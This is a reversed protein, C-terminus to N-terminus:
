TTCIMDKLFTLGEIRTSRSIMKSVASSSVKLYQALSNNDFEFHLRGLFAFVQRFTSTENLRGHLYFNQPDISIYNKVIALLNDLSVNEKIYRAIRVRRYHDKELVSDVFKKEGMIWYQPHFFGQKGKNIDKVRDIVASDERGSRIFKQYGALPDTYNFLDLVSKVDTISNCSNTIIERHGSWKYNDFMQPSCAKCRVPNLHIHRILDIGMNQQVILSAFRRYFVVGEHHHKKNYYKAYSSNLRQMFISIPIDSSKVVLHYHNDMISWSLCKFSYKKLTVALEKLFFAKSEEDSFINLDQVGRSTVEYFVQSAIIRPKTCM